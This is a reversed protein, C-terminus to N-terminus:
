ILTLMFHKYYLWCNKKFSAMKFGEATANRQNRWKLKLVSFFKRIIRSGTNRYGTNGYGNKQIKYIRIRYILIWNKRIRCILLVYKHIWYKQTWYKLIMYKVIWYKRIWDILTRYKQILNKSIKIELYFQTGLRTDMYRYIDIYSDRKIETQKNTWNYGLLGQVSKVLIKNPSSPLAM